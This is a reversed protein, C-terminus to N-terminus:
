EPRSEHTHTHTHGCCPVCERCLFRAKVGVKSHTVLTYDALGRTLLAKLCGADWGGGGVGRGPRQGMTGRASGTDAAIFCLPPVQQIHMVLYLVCQLDSVQPTAALQLPPTLTGKPTDEWTGPLLPAGRGREEPKPCCFHLPPPPLHLDDHMHFTSWHELLEVSTLFAVQCRPCTHGRAGAERRGCVGSGQGGRASSTFSSASSHPRADGNHGPAVNEYVEQQHLADPGKFTALIHCLSGLDSAHAHGHSRPHKLSNLSSHRPFAFGQSGFPSVTPTADISGLDVLSIDSSVGDSAAVESVSLYHSPFESDEHRLTCVSSGQSLEESNGRLRDRRGTVKRGLRRLTETFRNGETATSYGGCSERSERGSVAEEAHEQQQSSAPAGRRSPLTNSRRLAPGGGASVSSRVSLRRGPGRACAEERSAGAGCPDQRGVKLSSVSRAVSSARGRRGAGEQDFDRRRALSGSEFFKFMRM